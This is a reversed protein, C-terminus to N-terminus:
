GERSKAIRISYDRQSKAADYKTEGKKFTEVRMKSIKRIGKLICRRGENSLTFNYFETDIYPSKLEKKVYAKYAKNEMKQINNM